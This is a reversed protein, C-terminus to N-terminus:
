ICDRLESIMFVNHIPNCVGNRKPPSISFPELEKPFVFPATAESKIPIAPYGLALRETAQGNFYLFIVVAILIINTIVWVTIYRNRKGNIYNLESRKVTSENLIKDLDKENLLDKYRNRIDSYKNLLRDRDSNVELTSICLYLFSFGILLFSVMLVEFNFAGSFGEKNVVRLLFISIFFTTFTWLNTKFMSFMNKTIELAKDSQGQIFDSIKNKIEIYQKVNEKLYLDYGSEVSNSTGQEISLITENELHISIINRSLGIKDTYSGEVYTWNYIKNLENLNHSKLKSFDINGSLLKYGKLRYKLSNGEISSFDSLYIILLSNFIGTFCDKLQNDFDGDCLQFDNPIFHFQAANAFHGCKDRKEIRDARENACIGATNKIPNEIPFVSNFAISHTAFCKINEWINVKLIQSFEFKNWSELNEQLSLSNVHESFSSFDFINFNKSTNKDVRIELQVKEDEDVLDFQDKLEALKISISSLDTALIRVPSQNEAEFTLTLNIGKSNLLSLLITLSEELGDAVKHNDLEHKSEYLDFNDVIDLKTAAGFLSIIEKIISMNTVQHRLSM